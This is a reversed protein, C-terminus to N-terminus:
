GGAPFLDIGWANEMPAVVAQALRDCGGTAIHIGDPDRLLITQGGPGPIESIYQGASNSFVGWSPFYTVGKHVAAQSRYISNLLEMEQSFGANQMIPMGVWLVRAGASTAENMVM